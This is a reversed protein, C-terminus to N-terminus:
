VVVAFPSNLSKAVILFGSFMSQPYFRIKFFYVKYAIPSVKLRQFYAHVILNM